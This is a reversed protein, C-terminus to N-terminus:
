TNALVTVKGTPSPPDWLEAPIAAVAEVVKLVWFFPVSTPVITKAAEAVVAINVIGAAVVNM